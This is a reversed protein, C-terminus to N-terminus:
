VNERQSFGTSDSSYAFKNIEEKSNRIICVTTEGLAYVFPLQKMSTGEELKNIVDL